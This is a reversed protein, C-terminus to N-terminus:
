KSARAGPLAHSLAAVAYGTAWQSIWGNHGYPFGGDFYPQFKPARSEVFWSGDEAQTSLLYATGKRYAADVGTVEPSESLAYLATATGYADSKLYPTQAWGGDERQLGLLRQGVRNIATGGAGSWKAGLLQMVVDETTSPEEKSLWKYARAIREDMEAKKAPPSYDRLARIAQATTSFRSDMTPPRLIGPRGWSGDKHQQAAINHVLADTVRDQEAREASLGFLSQTLIQVEPPDLRELMGDSFAAYQLRTGRVVEAAASEDVRVGKSRAAAVAV